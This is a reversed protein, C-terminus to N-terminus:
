IRLSSINRKKFNPAVTRRDFDVSKSKNAAKVRSKLGENGKLQSRLNGNGLGKTDDSFKGFCKFFKRYNFLKQHSKNRDSNIMYFDDKIMSNKSKRANLNNYVNTNNNTITDNLKRSFM